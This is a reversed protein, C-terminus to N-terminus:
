YCMYSKLVGSKVKYKSIIDSEEKNYTLTKKEVQKLIFNRLELYRDYMTSDGVCKFKKNLWKSVVSSVTKNGDRSSYGREDDSEIDPLDESSIDSNDKLKNLFPMAGNSIDGAIDYVAKFVTKESPKGKGISMDLPAVVFCVTNSDSEADESGSDLAFRCHGMFPPLGNSQPFVYTKMSEPALGYSGMDGTAKDVASKFKKNKIETIVENVDARSDLVVRWITCGAGDVEVRIELTKGPSALGKDSQQSSDNDSPENDSVQQNDQNSQNDTGQQSDQSPQNDPNQQSGPRQRNGSRKKNGSGKRRVEFMPHMKLFAEYISYNNSSRIEINYSESDQQSNDSQSDNTQESDKNDSQPQSDEKQTTVESCKVVKASKSPGLCFIRLLTKLEDSPKTVDSVDRSCVLYADNITSM